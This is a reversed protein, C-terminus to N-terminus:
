PCSESLKVVGFDILSVSTVAAGPALNQTCVQWNADLVQNRDSGTLDHSKTYFVAGGTLAQIQDQADQLTAGVLNPMAWQQGAAPAEPAPAQEAPPETPAPETPQETPAASTPLDAPGNTTPTPSEQQPSGCGGVALAVVCAGVATIMSVTRM